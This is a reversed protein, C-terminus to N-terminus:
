KVLLLDSWRTTFHPSKYQSKLAWEKLQGLAMSRLVDQGEKKNILDLTKMLQESKEGDGKYFLDLQDEHPDCINYLMIGCKKYSFGERFLFSMMELAVKIVKLTDQTGVLFHRDCSNYYQPTQNFPNTM